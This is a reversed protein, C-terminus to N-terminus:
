FIATLTTAINFAPKYDGLFSPNKLYTLTPTMYFGRRVHAAYLLSVSFQDRQAEQGLALLSQRARESFDNYSVTLTVSDEPRGPVMGLAYIRGELNTRTANVNPNAFQATVGAYVGRYALQRDPQFLQYDGLAYFAYNDSTGRGDWRTYDTMNYIAGARLWLQRAEASAPKQIGFEQIFLPRAGERAFKLGIGNTRADEILGAPILSRQVGSKSYFGNKGNLQVNLLPTPATSSSIGVQVPVAGALGSALIPNGGAFIGIFNQLNTGYGATVEVKRDFFSGYFDLRGVNFSSPGAQAWNVVVALLATNFQIIDKGSGGLKVSGRLETTNAATFKQGIFRQPTKPDAGSALNYNLSTSNLGRFFLGKEYLSSRWGGIDALVTDYTGPLDSMQGQPKLADFRAFKAHEAAPDPMAAEPATETTPAAPSAPQQAPDRTETAPEDRGMEQAFVSSTSM